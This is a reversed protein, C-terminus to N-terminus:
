KKFSPDGEGILAVLTLYALLLFGSFVLTIKITNSYALPSSLSAIIDQLLTTPNTIADWSNWRLFRGLYIGFACLIIASITLMWALKAHLRKQLFLQIEYLSLFGLMLGTWAFSVLVMMDYWKPIPSRSKLHLLDTLIYPANPFFLLWTILMGGIILRSNTLRAAKEISLAIWYPIWALFLNWILFLFSYSGRINEFDEMSKIERFEINQYYLRVGILAFGFLTSLCMVTFLRFQQKDRFLSKITKM